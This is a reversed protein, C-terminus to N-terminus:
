ANLAVMRGCVSGDLVIVAIASGLHYAIMARNSSRFEVLAISTHAVRRSTKWPSWRALGSTATPMPADIHHM